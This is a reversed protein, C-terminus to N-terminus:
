SFYKQRGSSSCACMVRLEKKSTVIQITATIRFENGPERKEDISFASEVEDAMYTLLESHLLSTHITDHVGIISHLVATSIIVWCSWNALMCLLYLLQNAFLPLM